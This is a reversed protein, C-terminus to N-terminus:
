KYDSWSIGHKELVNLAEEFVLKAEDFTKEKTSYIYKRTKQPIYDFVSSFDKYLNPKLIKNLEGENTDIILECYYPLKAGSHKGDKGIFLVLNPYDDISVCYGKMATRKQVRLFAENRSKAKNSKASKSETNTQYTFLIRELAALSIKEIDAKHIMCDWYAQLGAFSAAKGMVLNALKSDYIPLMMDQLNRHMWFRSHKTIFAVGMGYFKKDHLGNYFAKIADFVLKRSEESVNKTTRCTKVFQKYLPAIIEWDFQQKYYFQYGEKGGWIEIMHFIKELSEKNQPYGDILFFIRRELANIDGKDLFNEDVIGRDRLRTYMSKATGGLQGNGDSSLAPVENKYEVNPPFYCM